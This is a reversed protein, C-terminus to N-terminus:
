IMRQKKITQGVSQSHYDGVNYSIEQGFNFFDLGAPRNIDFRLSFESVCM